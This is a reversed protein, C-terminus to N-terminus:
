KSRRHKTARHTRRRRNHTRRRQRRRRGGVTGRRAEMNTTTTLGSPPVPMAVRFAELAELKISTALEAAEKNIEADARIYEMVATEFDAFKLAGAKDGSMTNTAFRQIRTEATCAPTTQLQKIGDILFLYFLMKMIKPKSFYRGFNSVIFADTEAADIHPRILTLATSIQGMIAPKKDADISFTRDVFKQLLSMSIYISRLQSLCEPIPKKAYSLGFLGTTPNELRNSLEKVYFLARNLIDGIAGADTLAAM